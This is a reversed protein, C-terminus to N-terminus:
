RNSCKMLIQRELYVTKKFWVSVWIGLFTLIYQAYKGAESNKEDSGNRGLDLTFFLM